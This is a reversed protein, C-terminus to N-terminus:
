KENLKGKSHKKTKSKPKLNEKGKAKKEEKNTEKKPPEGKKEADKKKKKRIWVVFNRIGVAIAAAALPVLIYLSIRFLPGTSLKLWGLVIGVSWKMISPSVGETINMGLASGARQAMDIMKDPTLNNLWFYVFTFAGVNLTTKLLVKFLGKWLKFSVSIFVFLVGILYTVVAGIIVPVVLSFIAENSKIERKLNEVGEVLPGSKTLEDINSEVLLEIVDDQIEEESKDEIGECAEKPFQDRLDAPLLDYNDCTEVITEKDPIADMDTESVILDTIEEKNEKLFDKTGEAAIEDIKDVNELLMNGTLMIFLVFVALFIAMSGIISALFRGISGLAGM